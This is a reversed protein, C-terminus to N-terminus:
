SPTQVIKHILMSSRELYIRVATLIAQNLEDVENSTMDVCASVTASIHSGGESWIGAVSVLPEGQASHFLMSSTEHVLTQQPSRKSSM